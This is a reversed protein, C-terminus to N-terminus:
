RDRLFTYLGGDGFIKKDNEFYYCLKLFLGSFKDTTFYSKLYVNEEPMGTKINVSSFELNYKNIANYCKRAANYYIKNGSLEYLELLAISFDTESDIWSRRGKHNFPFLGIDSQQQIWFDAISESRRIYINDKLIYFARNLINMYLFAAALNPQTRSDQKPRYQRYVIRDMVMNNNISNLIRKIHDYISSDRTIRYYEILGFILSFNKGMFSTRPFRIKSLSKEFFLYSGLPILNYKNYYPNSFFRLVIKEAKSIYKSEKTIDYMDTLIEVISYCYYSVRLSPINSAIHRSSIVKDNVVFKDICNDLLYDLLKFTDESKNIRYIEILGYLIEYNDSLRYHTDSDKVFVKNRYINDKLLEIQREVFLDQKFALLFPAYDAFDHFLPTKDLGVVIKKVIKEINKNKFQLNNMKKLLM